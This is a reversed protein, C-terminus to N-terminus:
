ANERNSRREFEEMDREVIAGVYPLLCGFIIRHDKRLASQIAVIWYKMVGDEEGFAFVPGGSMGPIIEVPLGEPLRGIFRPCTTQPLDDPPDEVWSVPIYLPDATSSIHTGSATVRLNRTVREQPIGLVGYHTFKALHLNRWRQEDVADIGNAQLLGQYIPRIHIFGFDLGDADDHIYFRPAGVLDFPISDHNVAAISWGDLLCEAEIHVRPDAILTELDQIVHGATALMWVGRFSMIFGSQCHVRPEGIRGGHENVLWDIWGFSVLHKCLFRVSDNGNKPSM